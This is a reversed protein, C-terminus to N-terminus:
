SYVVIMFWPLPEYYPDGSFKAFIRISRVCFSIKFSGEDREFKMFIRGPHGKITNLYAKIEQFM